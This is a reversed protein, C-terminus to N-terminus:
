GLHLHDIVTDVGRTARAADLIAQRETWSHVTGTLTVKGGDVDLAVDDAERNAQRELAGHIANRLVVMSVDGHIVALRNDVGIVGALNRVSRGADERQAMTEVTGRLTIMGDTVTTQIMDEPVFVDWKLAQRVAAAIETDDHCLSFPLKVALDNAVDLVGAVRHAAEEAALKKAWSTVTGTLTVIRDDVEVGVETASVRTDWALENLVDKQIQADSKM